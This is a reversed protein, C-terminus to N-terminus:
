DSSWTSSFSSSSFKIKQILIKVTCANNRWQVRVICWLWEQKESNLLLSVYFFFSRRFKSTHCFQIRCHKTHKHIHPLYTHLVHNKHLTSTYSCISYVLIYLVCTFLYIHLLARYLTGESKIFCSKILKEERVWLIKSVVVSLRKTADILENTSEGTLM